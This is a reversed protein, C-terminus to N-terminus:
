WSEHGPSSHPDHSVYTFVLREPEVIEKYVGRRWHDTGEPSRMCKSWLGAPRVDMQIFAVTLGKPGWWQAAQEPETWAKWM